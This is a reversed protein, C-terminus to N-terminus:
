VMDFDSCVLFHISLGERHISISNNKRRRTWVGNPLENGFRFHKNENKKSWEQRCAGVRTLSEKFWLERNEATDPTLDNKMEYRGHKAKYVQTVLWFAYQIASEGTKQQEDSVM